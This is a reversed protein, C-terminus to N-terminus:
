TAPSTGPQLCEGAPTLSTAHEKPEEKAAPKDASGHALVHQEVDGAEKGGETPAKAEKHLQMGDHEHKDALSAGPPATPHDGAHEESAHGEPAPGHAPAQASPTGKSPLEHGQVGADHIGREPEHPAPVEAHGKIAEASGLEGSAHGGALLHDETAESGATAASCFSLQLHEQYAPAGQGHASGHDAGAEAAEHSIINGQKGAHENPASGTGCWIPNVGQCGAELVSDACCAVKQLPM